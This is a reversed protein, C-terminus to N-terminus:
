STIWWILFIRCRNMINFFPDVWVVLAGVSVLGALVIGLISLLWKKYRNM